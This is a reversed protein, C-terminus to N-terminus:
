KCIHQMKNKNCDYGSVIFICHQPVRVLKYYKIVCLDSYRCFSLQQHKKCDYELVTLILHWVTQKKKAIVTFQTRFEIFSNSLFSPIRSKLFNFEIASLKRCFFFKIVMFVSMVLLMKPCFSAAM